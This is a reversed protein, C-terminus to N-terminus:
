YWAATRPPLAMTQVCGPWPRHYRWPPFLGCWSHCFSLTPPHPHPPPSQYNIQPFAGVQTRDCSRPATGAARPCHRRRPRHRLVPVSAGARPAGRRGCCPVTDNRETHTPSTYRHSYRNRSRSLISSTFPLRCQGPCNKPDIRPLGLIWYSLQRFPARLRVCNCHSGCKLIDHGWKRTM